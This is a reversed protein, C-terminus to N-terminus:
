LHLRERARRDVLRLLPEEGDVDGVRDLVGAEAARAIALHWLGLALGHPLSGHRQLDVLDSKLLQQAFPLRHHRFLLVDELAPQRAAEIEVRVVEDCALDDVRDAGAPDGVHHKLARAGPCELRVLRWADRRLADRELPVRPGGDCPQVAARGILVIEVVGHEVVFVYARNAPAVQGKLLLARKVLVDVEREVCPFGRIPDNASAALIDTRPM